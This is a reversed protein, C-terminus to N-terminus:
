AGPSSIKFQIMVILYTLIVGGVSNGAALNMDFIDKPRIPSSKSFQGILVELQRM